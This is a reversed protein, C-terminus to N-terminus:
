CERKQANSSKCRLGFDDRRSWGFGDSAALKVSAAVTGTLGLHLDTASVRLNGDQASLLVCSLAPLASKKDVVGKCRAVLRVIEKKAVTLDM